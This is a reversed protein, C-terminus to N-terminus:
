QLLIKMEEQIKKAENKATEAFNKDTSAYIIARSSNALLGCESNMGYKAVESLSGGQAGVGPILLFHNPVIKRVSALMEAKTAGVVFMTNDANGWTQSRELVEEFLFKGNETKIMQFDSASTNSTLALLVVWRNDFDLFPMATDKGMYPSLTVADFKMTEFFAQAYMQSTNGIDGRKADAILFQEPYKSKIYEITMALQTIGSEGHAEYFALNPKYSVCHAATADVIQKNFEFLPYKENRLHQPIKNIDTDLGVCLFSQKACIQSFLQKRNM